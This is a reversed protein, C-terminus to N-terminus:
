GGSHVNELNVVQKSYNSDNENSDMVLHEKPANLPLCFDPDFWSGFDYGWM